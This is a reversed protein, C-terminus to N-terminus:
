QKPGFTTQVSGGAVEVLDGIIAAFADGIMSGDGRIVVTVGTGSGAPTVTEGAQLIALMESGPAGPVTGGSHFRPLKPASITNGGVGPIWDPVTWHLAGVTHNWADSIANFAARFPATIINGLQAFAGGIRGPLASLWNWVDEAAGKIWHWSGVAADKIAGWVVRWLDQFWTTQTAIWIIAGVLATIALIIVGIPNADMAINWLWQAATAVGSAAAQVGAWTASAATSIATKIAGLNVAEYAMALLALTGVLGSAANAYAGIQEAASSMDSPHAERQAEALDLQANKLDITAQESDGIAQKGDTQAQTIDHQAQEGALQADTIDHQANEIDIMAQRAEDSSKGHEKVAQTYARQKLEADFQAQKLDTAARAADAAGTKGDIQSQTLDNQAQELDRTAQKADAMAQKVDQQARALAMARERGMNQIDAVAQVGDGVAALSDTLGSAINAMKSMHSTYEESTRGADQTEQAAAGVSDAVGQTAETAERSARQLAAADGAFELRVSNGTM